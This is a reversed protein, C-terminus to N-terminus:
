LVPSGPEPRPAHGPGPPAPPQVTRASQRSPRTTYPAHPARHNKPTSAERVAAVVLAALRHEETQARHLTAANAWRERADELGDAIRACEHAIRLDRSVQGIRRVHAAVNVVASPVARLVRGAGSIRRHPTGAGTLWTTVQATWLADQEVILNSIRLALDSRARIGSPVVVMPWHKTVFRDRESEWRTVDSRQAVTDKLRTADVGATRAELDLSHELVEVSSRLAYLQTALRAVNRMHWLADSAALLLHNTEDLSLQLVRSAATMDVPLKSKAVALRIWTTHEQASVRVVQTSPAGPRAIGVSAVDRSAQPERLEFRESGPLLGWRAQFANLAEQTPSELAGAVDVPSPERAANDVDPDDEAYARAPATRKETPSNSM